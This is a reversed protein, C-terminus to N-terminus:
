CTPRTPCAWPAAPTPTPPRTSDAPPPLGSYRRIPRWPCSRSASPRARRPPRVARRADVALEHLRRRGRPRQRDAGTRARDRAPQRRSPLGAPRLHLRLSAARPRGAVAAPAADDVLAPRRGAAPRRRRASPRPCRAPRRRQAGARAAGPRGAPGEPPPARVRGGIATGTLVAVVAARDAARGGAGPSPAPLRCLGALGPEIRQRLVAARLRAVGGPARWGAMSVIAAPAGTFRSTGSVWAPFTTSCASRPCTRGAYRRRARAAFAGAAVHRRPTSKVPPPAYRARCHLGMALTLTSKPDEDGVAEQQRARAGLDVDAIERGRQQAAAVQRDDVARVEALHGRLDAGAGHRDDVIQGLDAGRGVDDVAM